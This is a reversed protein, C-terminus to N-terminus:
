PGCGQAFARASFSAVLVPVPPLGLQSKGAFPLHVNWSSSPPGRPSIEGSSPDEAFVECAAQVLEAEQTLGNVASCCRSKSLFFSGSFVLGETQDESALFSCTGKM